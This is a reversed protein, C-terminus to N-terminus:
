YILIKITASLISDTYFMTLQWTNCNYYMAKKQKTGAYAIQVTQYTYDQLSNIYFIYPWCFMILFTFIYIYHANLQRYLLSYMICLIYMLIYLKWKCPKLYPLHKLFYSSSHEPQTSYLQRTCNAKCCYALKTKCYILMRTNLTPFALMQSTHVRNPTHRRSHYKEILIVTLFNDLVQLATFM